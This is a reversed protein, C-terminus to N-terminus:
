GVGLFTLLGQLVAAAAGALPRGVWQWTAQALTIMTKADIAVAFGTAVVSAAVLAIMTKANVSPARGTWVWSAQGLTINTPVNGGAIAILWSMLSDNTERFMVWPDIAHDMVEGPGLTRTWCFADKGAGWARNAAASDGLIEGVPATIVTSHSGAFVGDVYAKCGSADGTVTLRKIGTLTRIAINPSFSVFGGSYSALTDNLSSRVAHYKVLGANAAFTATDNNDIPFRCLISITWGRVVPVTPLFSLYGSTTSAKFFPGNASAGDFAYNSVTMARAPSVLDVPKGPTNFLFACQLGNALGHSQNLPGLVDPFIPVIGM